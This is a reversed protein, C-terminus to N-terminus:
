APVQQFAAQAREVAAIDGKRWAGMIPKARAKAREIDARYEALTVTRSGINWTRNM